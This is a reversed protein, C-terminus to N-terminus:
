LADQPNGCNKQIDPNLAKVQAETLGARHFFEHVIVGPLDGAKYLMQAISGPQYFANNGLFVRGDGGLTAGAALKGDEGVEFKNQINSWRSQSIGVAAATLNSSYRNLTTISLVGALTTPTTAYQSHIEGNKTM